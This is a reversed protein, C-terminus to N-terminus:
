TIESELTMQPYKIRQYHPMKFFASTQSKKELKQYFQANKQPLIM